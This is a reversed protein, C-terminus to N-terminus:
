CRRLGATDAVPLPDELELRLVTLQLPRVQDQPLGGTKESRLEVAFM